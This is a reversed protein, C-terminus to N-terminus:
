KTAGTTASATSTQVTGNAGTASATAPAVASGTTAPTAVAGPTAPTSPAPAVGPVAAPAAAANDFFMTLDFTPPNGKPCTQAPRDTDAAAIGTAPVAVGTTVAGKDSKTLGVRTVGRVTRLQSMLKAVDTHSSTCGTLQVSPVAPAAPTGSSAPTAAAGTKADLGTLHVDSPLAHSLDRLAQEWDFRQTALSQVTQVRSLALAEFDAYPKLAAAQATVRQSDATIKTLQAQRDKVTNGALVYAAVCVVGVALVGLVVFPGAGGAAPAV